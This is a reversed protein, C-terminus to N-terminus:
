MPDPALTKLLSEGHGPGLIIKLKDKYVFSAETPIHPVHHCSRCTSEPVQRQIKKKDGTQAHLSGPGHCSECQVNEFPKVDKVKCYGGPKMFGVSHCGICNRDMSKNADVLTQWAKSHGSLREIIKGTETKGPVKVLAKKWFEYAPMHCTKCTEAGVYTAQGKIPKPCELGGECAALREPLKKEYAQVLKLIEPDQKIERNIPIVSLRMSPGPLPRDETKQLTKLEQETEKIKSRIFVSNGRAMLSGLRGELLAKRALRVSDRQDLQIPQGARDKLGFFEIKGLYQGQSGATFVWPGAEGLKFPPLPADESAGGWIVLDPKTILALKGLEERPLSVLAVKVGWPLDVYRVGDDGPTAKLGLKRLTLLLLDLKEQDPCAAEGERTKLMDGGDVLVAQPNNKVLTTLRSIDGLPDSTCGCPAITGQLKTTFFLVDPKPSNSCALFVLLLSSLLPIKTM